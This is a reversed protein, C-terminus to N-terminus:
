CRVLEVEFYLTSHPPIAPPAGRAGYGLKSPITLARKGGVKMGKVGRCCTILPTALPFQFDRGKDFIPGKANNLRGVYHVTVKGSVCEKGQGVVMDTIALGSPLRRTAPSAAPTKPSKAEEKKPTKAPTKPAPAPVPTAVADAPVEKKPTKAPTKAEKKPTEKKPTVVFAVTAPATFPSKPVGQKDPAVLGVTQVPPAIAPLADVVPAAGKKVPTLPADKKAGVVAAVQSKHKLLESQISKEIAAEEEDAEEGEEAGEEAMAAKEEAEDDEEEDKEAEGELEALKGEEPRVVPVQQGLRALTPTATTKTAVPQIVYGTVVISTTGAVGLGNVADESSLLYNLKVSPNEATLSALTVYRKENEYKFMLTAADTKAVTELCANTVHYEFGQKIQFHSLFKPRITWGFFMKSHTKHYVFRPLAPRKEVRRGIETMSLLSMGQGAEAPAPPQQTLLYPFSSVLSPRQQPLVRERFEALTMVRVPAPPTPRGPLAIVEQVLESLTLPAPAAVPTAPTTPTATTPSAVPPTTGSPLTFQVFCSTDDNWFLQMNAGRDTLSKFVARYDSERWTAPAEHMFFIPAEAPPPVEAGLVAGLEPHDRGLDIGAPCQYAPVRNLVPRLAAALAAAAAAAAGAPAADGTPRTFAELFAAPHPLAPHDRTM